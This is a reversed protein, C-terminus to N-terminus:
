KKVYDYAGGPMVLKMKKVDNGEVSFDVLYDSFEKVKFKNTKYPVLTIPPQGTSLAILQNGDMLEIKVIDGALEYSGVYNNLTTAASLSADPKKLFAVEGEDISMVATAIEGQPNTSFNVSYKGLLQDDPTDFRDYHYHDLPLKTNHFDFALAAGDLTISLIGYAPDEYQGVYDTLPHSPTTNTIRTDGATKRAEKAAEKGDIREKLSRGNFDTQEFGLLRDYINYTIFESLARNHQGNVFVVVGIDDYPMLSVQSYFGGIAGGHRTLFHGKYSASARGMGYATNLIEDYGKTDLATNPNAMAPQLTERLIDNSIVNKGQFDGKNMLASVWNSMDELNSIISGAPGVGQMERYFPYKALLDTDRDEYYPVAFDKTKEMAEITFLTSNMSLPSLINEQVFQEWTKGTLLELNYGSAMYMLNNYLFSQRLPQVPELFQLRDYLEKRSFDSKYWIDDHRSIGTRHALMDRLTVTNYLEQTNFKIKPVFNSIPKDWALTGDEVLIGMAVATFLKTNSGIPFLTKSTVPLKNELDRYGFGKAYVLEDKIIIGVAIGPANWDQMVQEIYKDFGKLSKDTNYTQAQIKSGFFVFLFTLSLLIIQKM